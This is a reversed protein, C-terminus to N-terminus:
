AHTIRVPDFRFVALLMIQERGLGTWMDTRRADGRFRVSEKGGRVAYGKDVRVLRCSDVWRPSGVM